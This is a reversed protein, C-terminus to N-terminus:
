AVEGKEAREREVARIVIANMSDRHEFATRRLWEHLGAPLRLTM